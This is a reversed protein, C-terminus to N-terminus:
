EIWEELEDSSTSDYDVNNCTCCEYAEQDLRVWMLGSCEYCYDPCINGMYNLGIINECIDCEAIHSLVQQSILDPREFSELWTQISM